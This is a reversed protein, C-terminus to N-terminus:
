SSETSTGASENAVEKMTLIASIVAKLHEAYFSLQEEYMYNVPYGFTYFPEGTIELYLDKMDQINRDLGFIDTYPRFACENFREIQEKLM